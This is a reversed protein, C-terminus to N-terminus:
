KVTKQWESEWGKHKMGKQMKIIVYEIGKIKSEFKM